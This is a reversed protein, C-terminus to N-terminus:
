CIVKRNLRGLRCVSKIPWATVPGTREVAPRGRRRAPAAGAVRAVARRRCRRGAPAPLSRTRHPHAAGVSTPSSVTLM